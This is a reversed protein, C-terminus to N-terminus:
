RKSEPLESIKRPTFHYDLEIRNETLEMISIYGVEGGYGLNALGYAQNQEPETDKETIYWDMNGYFYHLYATAEDGKGDQEYVKPMTEIRTALEIMKDIYFQGEEGQMLKATFRHQQPNIFVRLFEMAKLGDNMTNM